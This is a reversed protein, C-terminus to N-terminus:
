SLQLPQLCSPIQHSPTTLYQWTLYKGNDAAADESTDVPEEPEQKCAALLTLDRSDGKFVLPQTFRTTQITSWSLNARHPCVSLYDM